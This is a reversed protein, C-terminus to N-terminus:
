ASRAMAKGECDHSDGRSHEDQAVPAGVGRVLLDLLPESDVEEVVAAAAAAFKLAPVLLLLAVRGLAVTPHVNGVLLVVATM